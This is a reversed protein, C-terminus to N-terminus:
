RLSKFSVSHWIEKPTVYHPNLHSYILLKRSTLSLSKSKMFADSHRLKRAREAHTTHRDPASELRAIGALTCVAFGGARPCGGRHKALFRLASM